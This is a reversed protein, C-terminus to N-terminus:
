INWIHIILTPIIYPIYMMFSVHFDEFLRGSNKWHEMLQYLNGNMFEFLLYLQGNERIVEKLRIINVHQLKRLSKIERLQM